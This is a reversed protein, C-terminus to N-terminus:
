DVACWYHTKINNEWLTKMVQELTTSKNFMSEVAAWAKKHGRVTQSYFCPENVPDTLDEGGFCSTKCDYEPNYTVTCYSNKLTKKM